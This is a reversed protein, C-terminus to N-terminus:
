TGDPLHLGATVELEIDWLHPERRLYQNLREIKLM